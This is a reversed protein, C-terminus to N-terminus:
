RQMLRTWGTQHATKTVINTLELKCYEHYGPVVMIGSNMTGMM